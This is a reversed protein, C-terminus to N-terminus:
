VVDSDKIEMKTYDVENCDPFIKPRGCVIWEESDVNGFPCDGCDITKGEGVEITILYAM